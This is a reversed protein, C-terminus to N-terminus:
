SVGDLHGYRKLIDAITKEYHIDLIAQAARTREKPRLVNLKKLPSRVYKGERYAEILLLAQRVFVLGGIPIHADDICLTIINDALTKDFSAIVDALGDAELKAKAADVTLDNGERDIEELQEVRNTTPEYSPSRTRRAFGRGGHRGSTAFVTRIYDITSLDKPTLQGRVVMLGVLSHLLPNHSTYIASERLRHIQVESLFTKPNRRKLKGSPYREGELPPRGRTNEVM